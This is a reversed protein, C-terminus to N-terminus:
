TSIAADYANLADVISKATNSLAPTRAWLSRMANVFEEGAEAKRKWKDRDEKVLCEPCIDPCGEGGEPIPGGCTDCEIGTASKPSSCSSFASAPYIPELNNEFWESWQTPDRPDHVIVLFESSHRAWGSLVCNRLQDRDLTVLCSGKVRVLTGNKITM